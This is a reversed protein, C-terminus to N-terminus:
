VLHSSHLRTSKRDVAGSYRPSRHGLVHGKLAPLLHQIHFKGATKKESLRGPPLHQLLAATRNDIDCGDSTQRRGCVARKVGSINCALSTQDAERPLEGSAPAAASNAHVGNRGSEKM